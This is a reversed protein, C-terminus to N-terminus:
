LISGRLNVEKPQFWGMKRFLYYRFKAIKKIFKFQKRIRMSSPNKLFRELELHSLEKKELFGLMYNYYRENKLNFLIDEPAKGAIINLRVMEEVEDLFHYKAGFIAKKDMPYYKKHWQVLDFYAGCKIDYVKIWDWNSSVSVDNNRRVCFSYDDSFLINRSSYLSIHRFITEVDLPLEFFRVHSGKGDQLFFLNRSYINMNFTFSHSWSIDNNLGSYEGSKAFESVSRFCGKQLTSDGWWAGCVILDVDRAFVNSINQKLEQTYFNLRMCDDQDLFIIVDGKSLSLGKNRTKSVGMNAHTYVRVRNDDYSNCIDLSSDTSGDNLLLLELDKCPQNLVSDITESLYKEGNFVPIIVSLM